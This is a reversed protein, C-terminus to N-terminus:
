TFWVAHVKLPHRSPDTSNKQPFGHAVDVSTSIGYVVLLARTGHPNTTDDGAYTQFIQTPINKRADGGFVLHGGILEDALEVILDNLELYNKLVIGFNTDDEVLLVKSKEKEM